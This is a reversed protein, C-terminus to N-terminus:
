DKEESEVVGWRPSTALRVLLAERADSGLTRAAALLRLETDPAISPNSALALYINLRADSGLTAAHDIIGGAVRPDQARYGYGYGYGHGHGGGPGALCACAGREVGEARPGAAVLVLVGLVCSGMVLAANRRM